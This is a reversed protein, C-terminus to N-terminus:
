TLSGRSMIKKLTVIRLMIKGKIIILMGGSTAPFIESKTQCKGCTYSTMNEVLGVVPIKLKRCFNLEKRVDALSVEQPTTVQHLPTNSQQPDDM